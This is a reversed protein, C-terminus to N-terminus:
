YEELQRIVLKPHTGDGVKPTYRHPRSESHCEALGNAELDILRRRATSQSVGLVHALEQASVGDVDLEVSTLYITNGGVGVTYDISESDFNQLRDQYITLVATWAELEKQAM